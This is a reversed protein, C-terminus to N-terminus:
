NIQDFSRRGRGNGTRNAKCLPSKLWSLRLRSISEIRRNKRNKIGRQRWKNNGRTKKCQDYMNEIWASMNNKFADIPNLQDDLEGSKFKSKLDEIEKKAKKFDNQFRKLQNIEDQKMNLDQHCQHVQSDNQGNQDNELCQERFAGGM